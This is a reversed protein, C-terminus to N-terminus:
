EYALTCCRYDAKQVRHRENDYKVGVLVEDSECQMQVWKTDHNKDQNRWECDKFKLKKKAAANASARLKKDASERATEEAKLDDRLQKYKDEVRVAIAVASAACERVTGCGSESQAAVVGVSLGFVLGVIGLFVGVMRANM